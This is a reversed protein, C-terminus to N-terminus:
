YRARFFLFFTAPDTDSYDLQLWAHKYKKETLYSAVATTKGAGPIDHLWVIQTHPAADFQRFFTRRKVVKTLSPANIKPLARSTYTPDLQYNQHENEGLYSNNISGTLALM